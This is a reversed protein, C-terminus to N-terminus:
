FVSNSRLPNGEQFNKPLLFAISSPPSPLSNMACRPSGGLHQCIAYHHHYSLFFFLTLIHQISSWIGCFTEVEPTGSRHFNAILEKKGLNVKAQGNSL